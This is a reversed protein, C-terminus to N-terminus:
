TPSTSIVGVVTTNFAVTRDQVGFLTLKSLDLVNKLDRKRKNKHTDNQTYFQINRGDQHTRTRALIALCLKEKQLPERVM